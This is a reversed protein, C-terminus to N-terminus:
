RVSWQRVVNGHEDVVDVKDAGNPGIRDGYREKVFKEADELTKTRAILLTEHDFTDWHFIKFVTEGLSKRMTTMKMMTM